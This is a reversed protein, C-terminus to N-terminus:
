VLSLDTLVEPLFFFKSFTCTSFEWKRGFSKFNAGTLNWLVWLVVYLFNWYQPLQPRGVRQNLPWLYPQHHNSLGRHDLTPVTELAGVPSVHPMMPLWCWCYSMSQLVVTRLLVWLCALLTRTCLRPCKCVLTCLGPCKCCTCTVCWTDNVDFM